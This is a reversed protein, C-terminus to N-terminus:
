TAQKQTLVTISEGDFTGAIAAAGMQNSARSWECEFPITTAPSAPWTQLNESSGARAQLGIEGIYMKREECTDHWIQFSFINPRTTSELPITRNEFHSFKSLPPLKVLPLSHGAGMEWYFYFTQIHRLPDFCM